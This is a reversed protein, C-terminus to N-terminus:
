AALKEQCGYLICESSICDCHDLQETGRGLDFQQRSHTYAVYYGGPAPPIRKKRAERLLRQILPVNLQERIIVGNFLLDGDQFLMTAASPLAEAAPLARAIVPAAASALLGGLFGRRSLNM